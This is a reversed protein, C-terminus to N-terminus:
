LVQVCLPLYLPRESYNFEEFRLFALLKGSLFLDSDRVLPNSNLQSLVICDESYSERFFYCIRCSEPSEGPFVSRLVPRDLSSISGFRQSRKVMVCIRFFMSIAALRKKTALQAARGSRLLICPFMSWITWYMPTIADQM